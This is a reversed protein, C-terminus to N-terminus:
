LHGSKKLKQIDNSITKQSTMTRKAIETQTMGEKVLKEVVGLRKKPVQKVVHETSERKLGNMDNQRKIIRQTGDRSDATFTVCSGNQSIDYHSVEGSEILDAMDRLHKAVSTKTAAVLLSKGNRM